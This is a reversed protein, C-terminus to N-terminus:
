LTMIVILADTAFTLDTDTSLTLKILDDKDENFWWEFMLSVGVMTGFSSPWRRWFRHADFAFTESVFFM